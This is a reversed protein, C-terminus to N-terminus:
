FGRGLVLERSLSLLSRKEDLTLDLPLQAVGILRRMIEAGTFGDVLGVDTDTAPRYADFAADAEDRTMGSFLLHARCVGADFEAHGHFGFEPDIVKPGEPSRIWSGPYFDGHVLTEGDSQYVHGLEAVARVYAGDAQLREAVATLGPTFQELDLGNDPDLPIDFIHAHNLARMQRNTIRDDSSGREFRHLVTLWELLIRLDALSATDGAGRYLATYDSADGLDEFVAVLRDPDRHILRPMYRRLPPEGAVADYFAIESLIRNEPADISPYKQVWPRSQKLIVSRDGSRIRAVFNMNGEGPSQVVTNDDADPLIGTNRVYDILQRPEDFSFYVPPDPYPAQHLTTARIATPDSLVFEQVDFANM